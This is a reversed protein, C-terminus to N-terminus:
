YTIAGTNSIATPQNQGTLGVSWVVYYKGNGSRLYNYETTSTAGFPDYLINTIMKPNASILYSNQVTITSPPFSNNMSKYEELAAVLTQVEKQAQAVQANQSMGKIKPMAIGILITLVSIVVLLELITFANKHKNVPKM